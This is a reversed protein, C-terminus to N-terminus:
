LVKTSHLWTSIYGKPPEVPIKWEDNAKAIAETVTMEHARHFLYQRVFAWSLQYKHSNALAEELQDLENM